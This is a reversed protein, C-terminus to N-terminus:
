EQPGDRRGPAREEGEQRVGAKSKALDNTLVAGGSEAPAVDPKRLAPEGDLAAGPAELRRARRSIHRNGLLEGRQEGSVTYGAGAAWGVRHEGVGEGIALRLLYEAPAALRRLQM